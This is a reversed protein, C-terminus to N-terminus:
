LVELLRRTTTKNGLFLFDDGLESLLETAVFLPLFFPSVEEAVVGQYSDPPHHVPSSSIVRSSSSPQSDSKRPWQCRRRAASLLLLLGWPRRSAVGLWGRIHPEAHARAAPQKARPSSGPNSIDRAHQWSSHLATKLINDRVCIGIPEEALKDFEFKKM